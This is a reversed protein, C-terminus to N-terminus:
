FNLQEVLEKKKSPVGIVQKWVTNTDIKNTVSIVDYFPFNLPLQAFYPCMTKLPKTFTLEKDLFISHRELAFNHTLFFDSLKFCFM